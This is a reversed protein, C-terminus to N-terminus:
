INYRTPFRKDVAIEFKKAFIQLFRFGRLAGKSKEGGAHVFQEQQRFLHARVGPARGDVAVVGVRLVRVRHHDRAM